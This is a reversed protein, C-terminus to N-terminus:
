EAVHHFTPAITRKGVGYQVRYNALAIAAAHTSEGNKEAIDYIALLTDYINHTKLRASTPNYGQEELEATVNLLGGANIVFDPAYLIGRSQLDDAHSERLLQNNAAGAISRCQFLPLTEDNVIGGLACPALIDCETQLIQDVSKIKAGFKDALQKVKPSNLDSLTLDAGAWFLYEALRSGVGGLGQIAVSRGALSDTGFLIKMVAQMGRYVGWATFACPDGSSKANPLGVVYKTARRIMKVDEVTCGADEACIYQGKLQDVAAGFALLLEPTKDTNPDAIIVSKGGGFGAQTMASKYTMGKSLRLVDELAEKFSAYPRIRVGGLAPGLTTNHLSIIATLRTHKDSIKLVQEYGNIIIKEFQLSTQVPPELIQHAM